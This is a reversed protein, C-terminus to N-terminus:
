HAPAVPRQIFAVPRRESGQAVSEDGRFTVSSFFPGLVGIRRRGLPVFEALSLADRGREQGDPSQRPVKSPHWLRRGIAQSVSRTDGLPRPQSVLVDPSSQNRFGQPTSMEMVLMVMSLGPGTSNSIGSPGEM